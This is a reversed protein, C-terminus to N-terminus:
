GTGSYEVFAGVVRGIGVIREVLGAMLSGRVALIPSSSRGGSSNWRITSNSTLIGPV